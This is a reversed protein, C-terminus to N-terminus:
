LWYSLKLNLILASHVSSAWWCLSVALEESSLLSLLLFPLFSLVLPLGLHVLMIVWLVVLRADFDMMCWTAPARPTDTSRVIFWRLLHLLLSRLACRVILASLTLLRRITLLLVVLLVRIVLISRRLLVVTSISALVLSLRLAIILVVLKTILNLVFNWGWCRLVIKSVTRFLLGRYLHVMSWTSFRTQIYETIILRATSLHLPWALACTAPSFRLGISGVSLLLGLHNRPWWFAWSLVVFIAKCALHVFSSLITWLKVETLM